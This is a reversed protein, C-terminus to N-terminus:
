WTDAQQQLRWKMLVLDIFVISKWVPSNTSKDQLNHADQWLSSQYHIIIWHESSINPAKPDGYPLWHQDYISLSSLQTDEKLSM